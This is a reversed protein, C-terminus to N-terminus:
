LQWSPGNSILDSRISQAVKCRESQDIHKTHNRLLEFIKFEVKLFEWIPSNSAPNEAKKRVKKSTKGDQFEWIQSNPDFNGKGACVLNPPCSKEDAFGWFFFFGRCMLFPRLYFFGNWHPLFPIKMSYHLANAPISGRVDITCQEAYQFCTQRDLEISEIVM